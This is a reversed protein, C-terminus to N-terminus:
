LAEKLRKIADDLAIYWSQKDLERLTKVRQQTYPNIVWAWTEFDGDAYVYFVNKPGTSTYYHERQASM